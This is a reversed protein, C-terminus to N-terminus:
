LWDCTMKVSVELNATLDDQNRKQLVELGVCKETLDGMMGNLPHIEKM